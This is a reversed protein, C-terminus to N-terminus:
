VAFGGSNLQRPEGAAEFTGNELRRLSQATSQGPAIWTVNHGRAKMFSVTENDYAWEFSIQNPVLQDHFRPKALAQPATMNQDLVHWLNQLTATIIRSGGAAAVAFYVSGNAHEVITPTISSLPRKGPRIYNSPSPIYGFANSSGPISFDNMEDNLIVGTEPVMIHSGFLLNVTTTISITMGSKDSTVVASTGPTVLSEFGSPDYASVNLTHEPNIKARVAAATTESLMDAQYADMGKVFSPDGLESRQGYAFRIAEDFLHTSEDVTSAEGITTYGEIIKMVSALVTGSSPASGSTIKYDRYSIASPPRIAVTYNKLDALTMIGGTTNITDITAEAIPGTYFADPGRKAISELTDAYRRRTITDGLGLLTGNPAFDIAWTPENVLFNDIGVIASAMYRVLDPTVTFGNRAVQVAPMVLDVWPLVGFNEHLHQLGRVEGPVGSALGTYISSNTNNNYMDQTAAAPATERFDIFEYSGNSHRALMFGGGGVGSHYMGIVGVCFVTAVMSDAANGGAKLVDIGINSCISSESAVAGLKNDDCDDGGSGGYGGHSPWSPLALAIGTTLLSLSLCAHTRM